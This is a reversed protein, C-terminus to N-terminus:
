GRFKEVKYELIYKGQCVSISLTMQVVLTLQTLCKNM